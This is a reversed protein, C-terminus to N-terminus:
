QNSTVLMKKIFNDAKDNTNTLTSALYYLDVKFIDDNNTLIITPHCLDLTLLGDINTLTSLLHYFDQCIYALYDFKVYTITLFLEPIISTKAFSQWSEM